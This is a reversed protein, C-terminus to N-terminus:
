EHIPGLTSDLNYSIKHEAREQNHIICDAIIHKITLAIGCTQCISPPPYEKAILFGHTIRTHGIRLRNLVTEDKRTLKPNTWRRIDIEIENLKINQLNWLRQWKNITYENIFKKSDAYSMQNILLTENNNIAISAQEDALENGRIGSHGPIWM